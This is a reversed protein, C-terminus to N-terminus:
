VADFFSMPMLCCIFARSVQCFSLAIRLHPMVRHLPLFVGTVSFYDVEKQIMSILCSACSSFLSATTTSPPLLHSPLFLAPQRSASADADNWWLRFVEDWMMLIHRREEAARKSGIAASMLAAILQWVVAHGIRRILSRYRQFYWRFIAVDGAEVVSSLFIAFDAFIMRMRRPMMLMDCAGYLASVADDLNQRWHCRFIMADDERMM